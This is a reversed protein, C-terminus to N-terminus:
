LCNHAVLCSHTSSISSLDLALLICMKLWQSAEGARPSSTTTKITLQHLIACGVTPSAMGLCTPRPDILFEDSKIRLILWYVASWPTQKLSKGQAGARIKRLAPSNGLIIFYFSSKGGCTMELM